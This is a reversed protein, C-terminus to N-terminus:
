PKWRKGRKAIVADDLTAGLGFGSPMWLRGDKVLEAPSMVESRWSAEYVAHELPLAEPLAATVHGGLLLSVPGSPSHPSVQAGVALASKGARYAEAIGGCYKVDPMIVSVAGSGILGDFFQQGYGNEGGAVTIGVLAAIEVLAAIDSTPEVPEEFWGINSKALEEAILPATHLEFRSHCDVLVTVDPGVADRIAAVRRIGLGALDLVAEATSPPTVEDFPACKITTFGNNVALLAANAFAEPTRERTLLHRNINAYLPVSEHPAGGLFETLSLGQKQALLDSVASRIASVATAKAKDKQLDYDSFSLRTQVDVDSPLAGGKLAGLMEPLLGVARATDSGSTIETVAKLGDVDLFEAFTWTTRETVEVSAFQVRLLKVGDSM